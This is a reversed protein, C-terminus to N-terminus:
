ILQFHDFEVIEKGTCVRCQSFLNRLCANFIVNTITTKLIYCKLSLFCPSPALYNVHLLPGWTTIINRADFFVLGCPCGTM